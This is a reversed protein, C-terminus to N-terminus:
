LSYLQHGTSNDYTVTGTNYYDQQMPQVTSMTQNMPTLPPPQANYSFNGQRGSPLAAAPPQSAPNKDKNRAKNIAKRVADEVEQLLDEKQDASLYKNARKALTVFALEYDDEVSESQARTEKEILGFLKETMDERKKAAPTMRIRKASDALTINRGVSTSKSTSAVAALDTPHEAMEAALMDDPPTVIQETQNDTSTENEDSEPFNSSRRYFKHVYYM